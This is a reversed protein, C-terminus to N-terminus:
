PKRKGKDSNMYRVYFQITDTLQKLELKVYKRVDVWIIFYLIICKHRVKTIDQILQIMQDM